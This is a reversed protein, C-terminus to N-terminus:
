KKVNITVNVKPLSKDTPQNNIGFFDPAEQPKTGIPQEYNNPVGQLPPLNVGSQVVQVYAWDGPITFESLETPTSVTRPDTKLVLFCDGAGENDNADKVNQLSGHGVVRKIFFFYEREILDTLWAVFSADGSYHKKFYESGLFSKNVRVPTGERFGGNSYHSFAAELLTDYKNFKSMTNNISVESYVLNM